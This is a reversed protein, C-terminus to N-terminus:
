KSFPVDVFGLELLQQYAQKGLDTTPNQSQIVQILLPVSLEPQNQARHVLALQFTANDRKQATEIARQRLSDSIKSNIGVFAASLDQYFNSIQNFAQRADQLKQQALPYNKKSVGESAEEVLRDGGQISLVSSAQTLPRYDAPQNASTQAQAPLIGGLAMVSVLAIGSFKPLFSFFKVSSTCDSAM